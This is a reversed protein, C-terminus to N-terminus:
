ILESALCQADDWSRKILEVIRNWPGATHWAMHLCQSGLIVEGGSRSLSRKKIIGHLLISPSLALTAPVQGASALHMQASDTVDWGPALLQACM